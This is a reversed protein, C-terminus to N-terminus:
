DDMYEEDLGGSEDSNRRLMPSRRLLCERADCNEHCVCTKESM